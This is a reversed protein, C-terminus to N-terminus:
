SFRISNVFTEFATQSQESRKVGWGDSVGNNYIKYVDKGHQTFYECSTEGSDMKRVTYTIGNIVKEEYEKGSTKQADVTTDKYMRILFRYDLNKEDKGFHWSVAKQTLTGDAKKTVTVQESIMNGAAKADYTIGFLDNDDEQTETADTFSIKSMFDEFKAKNDDAKKAFSYGIGYIVKDEECLAVFASGQEIVKFQKGAYTAAKASELSKQPITDTPDKGVTYGVMISSKDAFTYQFSKETLNGNVDKGTVREVSDYGSPPAFHLNMADTDETADIFKSAESVTEQEGTTEDNKKSGCASLSIILLACLLVALVKKM